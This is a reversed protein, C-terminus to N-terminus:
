ELLGQARGGQPQVELRQQGLGGTLCVTCAGNERGPRAMHVGCHLGAKGM